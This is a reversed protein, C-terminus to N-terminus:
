EVEPFPIYFDPPESVAGCSEDYFWKNQAFFLPWIQKPNIWKAIVFGAKQPKEEAPIWRTAERLRALEARLRTLEDDERPEWKTWPQWDRGVMHLLCTRCPESENLLDSFKCSYCSKEM